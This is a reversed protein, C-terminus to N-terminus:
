SHITASTVTSLSLLKKVQKYLDGLWFSSSNSSHHIQILSSAACSKTLIGKISAKILVCLKSIIHKGSVKKFELMSM